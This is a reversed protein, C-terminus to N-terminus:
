RAAAPAPRHRAGLRQALRNLAQVLEVLTPRLERAAAGPLARVALCLREARGEFGPLDVRHGSEVLREAAEIMVAFQDLDRRLALKDDASSM